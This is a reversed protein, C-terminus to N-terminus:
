GASKYSLELFFPLYMSKFFESSCKISQHATKQSTSRVEALAVRVQKREIAAPPWKCYFCGGRVHKGREEEHCSRTARVAHTSQERNTKRRVLSVCRAFVVHLLRDFSPSSRRLQTLSLVCGAGEVGIQQRVHM